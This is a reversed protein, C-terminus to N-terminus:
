GDGSKPRGLMDALGSFPRHQDPGSEADPRRLAPCDKADRHMPVLPLAALVEDEVIASPEIGDAPCIVVEFPDSLRDAEEDSGVITLCEDLAVPWALPGLCRQCVLTLEGDVRLLLQPFGETGPQFVLQAALEGRSGETASPELEALRDLDAVRFRLDYHGGRLVLDQLEASGIAGTAMAAGIIPLLDHHTLIPLM